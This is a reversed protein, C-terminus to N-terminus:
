KSNISKLLWYYIVIYLFLNFLTFLGLIESNNYFTFAVIMSPMHLFNMILGAFNQQTKNKSKVKLQIVKKLVLTHLHETDPELPNSKNLYKRIISFLNEFAPYWLLTLAILPSVFKFNNTFDIIIITILTGLVFVGNDGLINNFFFNFILLIFIVIILDNIISIYNSEHFPGKYLVILLAVLVQLIYGQSNLNIGDVFNLGNIFVLICFITFFYNFVNYESIFFDLFKLNTQEILFNNSISFYTILTTHLILRILPNFNKKLDSILGVIFFLSLVIILDNYKFNINDKEYYLVLCILPLLFFGGIQVLKNKNLKKHYQNNNHQIYSINKYILNLLILYTLSILFLIM